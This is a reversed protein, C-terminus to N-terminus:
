VEVVTVEDLERYQVIFSRASHRQHRYHRHIHPKTERRIKRGLAVSLYDGLGDSADDDDNDTLQGRCM